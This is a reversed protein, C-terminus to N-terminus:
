QVSFPCRKHQTDPMKGCICCIWMHTRSIRCLLILGLGKLDMVPARVPALSVGIVGGHGLLAARIHLETM